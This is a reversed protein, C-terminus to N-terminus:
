WNSNLFLELVTTDFLYRGLADRENLEDLSLSLTPKSELYMFRKYSKHWDRPLKKFRPHQQITRTTMVLPGPPKFLQGIGALIIGVWLLPGTPLPKFRGEEDESLWLHSPQNRSM